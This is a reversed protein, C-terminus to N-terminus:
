FTRGAIAALTEDDMAKYYTSKAPDPDTWVSAYDDRSLVELGRLLTQVCLSEIEARIDYYSKGRTEVTASAILKGWDIEESVTHCTVGVPDGNQLAWEVNTCGRYMPILGPHVNITALRPIDLINQKIIGAGGLILVDPQLRKLLAECKPGSQRRVFYTPVEAGDLVDSATEFAYAEGMKQRYRDHIAQTRKENREAVIAALSFPSNLIARAYKLGMPHEFYMILAVRLPNGM